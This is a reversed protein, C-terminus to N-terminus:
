PKHCFRRNSNRVLQLPKQDDDTWALYFSRMRWLNLASLGAMGSFEKQLDTALREVVQKGYGQNKQSEVITKGLDRYLAILGRNVSVAARLQAARVRTKLDALITAYGAPLAASPKGSQGSAKSLGTTTKNKAM